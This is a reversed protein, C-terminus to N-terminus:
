RIVGYMPEVACVGVVTVAGAVEFVIVPSVAPVVYVKVTVAILEAPAPGATPSISGPSASGGRLRARFSRGRHSRFGALWLAWIM